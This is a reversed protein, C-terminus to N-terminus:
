SPLTSFAPCPSAGDKKLQNNLTTATSWWCIRSRATPPSTETIVLDGAALVESLPRYQFTGDVPAILPVIAINNFTQPEGFQLSQLRSKVANEM